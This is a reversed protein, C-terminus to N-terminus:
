TDVQLAPDRDSHVWVGTSWSPDPFKPPSGHNKMKINLDPRNEGVCFNGQNYLNLLVTANYGPPIWSRKTVELSRQPDDMIIIM